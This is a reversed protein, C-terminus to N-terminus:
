PKGRELVELMLEQASCVRGSKMTREAAARTYRNLLARTPRLTIAVTETATKASKEKQTASRVTKEAEPTPAPASPPALPTEPLPVPKNAAQGLRAALENADRHPKM